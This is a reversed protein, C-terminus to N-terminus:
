EGEVPYPEASWAFDELDPPPPHNARFTKCARETRFALPYTHRGLTRFFTRGRLLEDARKVFDPRELAPCPRSCDSATSRHTTRVRPLHTGGRRSAWSPSWQECRACTRETGDLCRATEEVPRSCQMSLSGAEGDYWAADPTVKSLFFDFPRWDGLGGSGAPKWAGTPNREYEQHNSGFLNLEAGLLIEGTTESLTEGGDLLLLSFARHITGHLADDRRLARVGRCATDFLLTGGDPGSWALLADLLRAQTAETRHARLEPFRTVLWRWEDEFRPDGAPRPSAAVAATPSPSYKAADARTVAPPGAADPSRFKESGTWLALEERSFPHAERYARCAAETRFVLPHPDTGRDAFFSRGHLVRVARKVDESPEHAPCAKSCDAPTPHQVRTALPAPSFGFAGRRVLGWEDCRECTRQEGTDGCVMEERTRKVCQVSLETRFGDYWAAEETVKSLLPELRRGAGLVPPGDEEFVGNRRQYAQVNGAHLELMTGLSLADFEESLRDVTHALKRQIFGSLVNWEASRRISVPLCSRDFILTPEDPPAWALLAELLRANAGETRYGLAEPFRGKLWAWEADPDGAIPSEHTREGPGSTRAGGHAGEVGHIPARSSQVANPRAGTCRFVAAALVLM